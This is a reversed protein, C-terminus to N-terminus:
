RRSGPPGSSTRAGRGDPGCRHQCLPRSAWCVAACAVSSGSWSTGRYRWSWPGWSSCPSLPDDRHFETRNLSLPTTAPNSNVKPDDSVKSSPRRRLILLLRVDVHPGPGSTFFSSLFFQKLKKKNGAPYSPSFSFLLVSPQHTHNDHTYTFSPTIMLSTEHNRKLEGEIRSVTHPPCRM